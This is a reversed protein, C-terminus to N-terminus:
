ILKTRKVLAEIYRETLNDFRYSPITANVIATYEYLRYSWNTTAGKWFTGRKDAAKVVKHIKFKPKGKKRKDLLNQFVHGANQKLSAQILTLNISSPIRIIYQKM